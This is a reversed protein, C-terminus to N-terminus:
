RKVFQFKRRAGPQGPKKREKVRADVTLLGLKRLEPRLGENIKLLARSIGLKLADAQGWLGGGKINAEVDYERAEDVLRMPTSAALRTIETDFYDKFSRGNITITGSGKRLWVRAISKKRRGVAHGVPKVGKWEKKAQSLKKPAAKKPAVAKKPKDSPAKASVSAKVAAKDAAAKPAAKTEAKKSAKDSTAKASVSPKKAAKVTKEVKPKSAAKTTKTDATAKASTSKTEKVAKTATDKKETKAM